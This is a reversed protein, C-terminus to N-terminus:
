RRIGNFHGNVGVLPCHVGKPKFSELGPNLDYAKIQRAKHM